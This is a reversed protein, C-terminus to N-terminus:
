HNGRDYISRRFETLVEITSGNLTEAKGTQLTVTTIEEEQFLLVAGM